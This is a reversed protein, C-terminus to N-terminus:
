VTLGLADKCQVQESEDGSVTWVEGNGRLCKVHEDQHMCWYTCGKLVRKQLQEWFRREFVDMTLESRKVLFKLVAYKIETFGCLDM